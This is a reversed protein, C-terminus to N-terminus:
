NVRFKRQYRFTKGCHCKFEGMIEGHDTLMHNILFGILKYMKYCGSRRCIYSRGEAPENYPESEASSSMGNPEKLEDAKICDQTEFSVQIDDIIQKDLTVTEIDPPASYDTQIIINESIIPSNLRDVESLRTRPIEATNVLASHSFPARPAKSLEVSNEEAIKPEIFPLSDGTPLQSLNRNKYTDNPSPSLFAYTGNDITDARFHILLWHSRAEMLTGFVQGCESYSCRYCGDKQKTYKTKPLTIEPYKTKTVPNDPPDLFNTALRLNGLDQEAACVAVSIVENQFGLANKLSQSTTQGHSKEGYNPAMHYDHHEEQNYDLNEATENMKQEILPCENVQISILSQSDIPSTASEASQIVNTGFHKMVWHNRVQPIRGFTEGCGEHSCKFHGDKQKFFKGKPIKVEASPAEPIQNRSENPRSIHGVSNQLNSTTALPQNNVVTAKETDDSKFHGDKPKAFKIKFKKIGARPVEPIQNQSACPRSQYDGAVNKLNLTTEVPQNKAAHAKVTEDLAAIHHIQSHSHEAISPTALARDNIPLVQEKEAPPIQHTKDQSEEISPRVPSQNNLLYAIGKELQRSQKQMAIPATELMGNSALHSERMPIFSSKDGLNTSSPSDMTNLFTDIRLHNM